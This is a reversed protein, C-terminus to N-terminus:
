LTSCFACAPLMLTICSCGVKPLLAVSSAAWGEEAMRGRCSWFAWTIDSPKLYRCLRRGLYRGGQQQPPAEGSTDQRQRCAILYPPLCLYLHQLRSCAHRMGAGSSSLLSPLGTPPLHRRIAPAGFGLYKASDGEWTELCLERCSGGASNGAEGYGPVEEEKLATTCRVPV